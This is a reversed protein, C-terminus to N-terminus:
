GHPADDVISLRKIETARKSEEDIRVFVGNLVGRGKAADLRAGRGLLFREIVNEPRVGIVSDYPGCMGVDTIYATGKPLIREDATQVHTHTGVVVSARGDLYYGFAVKESTAEAHFDFLFIDGSESALLSDAARFPCEVLEGLFIRGILNVVVIKKGKREVAVAGRGPNGAPYNAPRIIQVGAEDLYPFVERRNWIHNGTTIVDVGASFIEQATVREIGVGGAANEGNAVVLDPSLERMISPLLRQLTKRGVGGVVDGLFLISIM